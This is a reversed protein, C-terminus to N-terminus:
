AHILLNYFAGLKEGFLTARGDGMQHLLIQVEQSPRRFSFIICRHKSLESSDQLFSIALVISPM